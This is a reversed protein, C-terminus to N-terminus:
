RLELLTRIFSSGKANIKKIALAIERKSGYNLALNIQLKKNKKTLNEAKNLIKNLDSSFSKEGIIKLKINNEQFESIHFDMSFLVNKGIKQVGMSKLKM